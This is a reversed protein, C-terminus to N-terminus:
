PAVTPYVTVARCTWRGDDWYTNTGADGDPGITPYTDVVAPQDTTAVPAPVCSWAGVALAAAIISLKKLM